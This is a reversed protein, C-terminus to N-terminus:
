KSEKALPDYYRQATIQLPDADPRCDNAAAILAEGLARAADRRLSLIEYSFGLYDVREVAVCECDFVPRTSVKVMGAMTRLRALADRLRKRSKEYREEDRKTM